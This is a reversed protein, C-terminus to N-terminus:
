DSGTKAIPNLSQKMANLLQQVDIPKQLFGSAGSLAEREVTNVSRATVVIVPLQEYRKDARIHRVTEYGDMEPMMIDMLVLDIAQQQLVSLAEKGNAAPILTADYGEFIVSLAAFNRDDDDAVLIKKGRLLSKIHEEPKDPISNQKITFFSPADVPIEELALAKPQPQTYVVPLYISFTSGSGAISTVQIEGGLLGALQKSISLGLGTGGYKRSTGGEAQKFADFIEHLKEQAIGIGTDTVSFMIVGTDAHLLLDNTYKKDAPPTGIQLSVNGGKDTFKFANSLLNKLVQELRFKDTYIFPFGTSDFNITFSIDKQVAVSNFISELSEIIEVVPTKEMVMEIKGAEIKTLDLIDNILTLLDNGARHIINAQEIQKETLNKAANNALLKSLILMSNLPTRLEHSMNSLFDTKFSNSRELEEAKLQLALSAKELSDNNSSLKNNLEQLEEQQVRLEEHAAQMEENASQLEEQTNRLTENSVSLKQNAAQLQQARQYIESEMNETREKLEKTMQEYKEGREKMVVYDTIDVVQNIIHLINGANDLVPTNMTSWYRSEFSGDNRPIDYKLHGMADPVKNMLVRDFSAKLNAVGNPNPDDPNDPFVDYVLKGLVEERKTLTAAFYADTGAMLKLEPSLVLILLPASEFLLKFNPDSLTM